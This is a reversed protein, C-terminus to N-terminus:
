EASISQRVRERLVDKRVKGNHNFPLADVQLVREPLKFKAVGRALLYEVISELSVPPGERSVIVACTREGLRDDPYGVVSVEAVDPHELLFGEIEKPSINEGGRIILDKKRDTITLCGATDLHGIDGTRFWGGPLFCELDLQPDTYGIFLEPGRTAIEGDSGLPLDNGEDDVIRVQTGSCPVGDTTARQLDSQAADVITVTPHESLGYFRGALIGAREAIDVHYPTVGTGGLKYSRLSSLIRGDREAAELLGMLMTPVGASQTVGHRDVLEAALAADWRDMSVHEVGHLLSHFIIVLSAIHGPPMVNLMPGANAYFQIEYEALITENSHLIGKPAGTTGSSFILLQEDRPDGPELAIEEGGPSSLSEYSLTSPPFKGADGVVIVHDLTSPLLAESLQESYDIGRWRAPVVLAKAKSASLISSLDAPGHTHIVPVAICGLHAAAMHLVVTQGQLPMQMALVDGRRLGIRALGGAVRHAEENLAAVTQEAYGNETYFRFLTQPHWSVTQDLAASLTQGHYYGEKQWRARLEAREAQLQEHSMVM